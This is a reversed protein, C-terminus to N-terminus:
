LSGERMLCLPVFNILHFTYIHRKREKGRDTQREERERGRKKYEDRGDVPNLMIIM